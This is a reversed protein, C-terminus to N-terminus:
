KDGDPLKESSMTSTGLKTTKYCVFGNDGGMGYRSVGSVADERGRGTRGSYVGYKDEQCLPLEGM